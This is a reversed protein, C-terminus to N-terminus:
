AARTKALLTRIAKVRKASVVDVIRSPLAVKGRRHASVEKLAGMLDSGFKTDKKSM